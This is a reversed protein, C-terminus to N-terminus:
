SRSPRACRWKPRATAWTAACCGTWRSPRSWTASSTASPRRAPRAHPRVRLRGRVGGALAHRRQLRPGHRRPAGRLAQAARRGHRADGEQRAVQDEGVDHRRAPRAGPATIGSYKQVLDLREVPVFLKADAAYRLEMFEQSEAGVSISKLGVFMGIGHDVHVVYDGAKLDRFDSLFTGTASKHRDQRQRDEDFIDGEAFLTLKADPLRFGHSLRGRAVLVAVGRTSEVREIPQATVDYERLLEVTREARGATGVVFVVTEDHDRARRVEAVWDQLRGRFEMTRQCAVHRAASVDLDGAEVALEELVTASGLRQSIAEWGLILTEPAAVALGRATADAYSARLQEDLRRGHEAVAEPESVALVLGTVQRLYDLITASRDAALLGDPTADSVLERLPVIAVRDLTAVSRQTAPDFRRISEVTDGIFEVRLPSSEGAPFFDM